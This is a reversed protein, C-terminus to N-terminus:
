FNPMQMQESVELTGNIGLFPCAQAVKVADEISDAEILTYGSMHTQSGKSVAGDPTVVHTDKFPNAPAIVADGLDELWKKYEAMHKQGEEPTSPQDGGLYSIVFKPM